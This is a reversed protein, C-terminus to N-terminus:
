HRSTYQSSNTAIGKRVVSRKKKAELNNRKAFIVLSPRSVKGRSTKQHSALKRQASKSLMRMSVPYIRKPLVSSLPKQKHPFAIPVSPSYLSKTHEDDLNRLHKLSEPIYIKSPVSGSNTCYLLRVETRPSLDILLHGSPVSTADRYWDVLESGLGLQTSLTTVQMVERPSKFFVIHTSQLEVDRGLRSQHFFNHKIYITSLGRHRGATAFDVFAKSNCTKESFDDFILLYKTSNNKLSDIFEFYIGQVFELNQIERQMVDYRPQSLQYCFYIMEFKPQFTGIKSLQLYAAIKWNQFSWGILYLSPEKYFNGQEYGQHPCFTDKRVACFKLWFLQNTVFKQSTFEWFCGFIILLNVFLKSLFVIPSRSCTKGLCAWSKREQNNDDFVIKGLDINDEQDTM